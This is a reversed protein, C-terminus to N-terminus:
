DEKRQIESQLCHILPYFKDKESPVVGLIFDSGVTPLIPEFFMHKYPTNKDGLIECEEKTKLYIVKDGIKFNQEGM